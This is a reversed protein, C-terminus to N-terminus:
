GKLDQFLRLWDAILRTTLYNERMHEKGAEGMAEARAPEEFLQVTRAACEEVSDVLYGDVGDRIQLTIGGCNGGIVPRGKWLAEAVTLGFGERISKQVVVQSARQFANIQVAGVQQINSVMHIDPDNGRAEEALNWYQFGEPDDTAMSGALLLQLGDVEKRAIRYAEIVGVPDKWPDFRSVQCLLPRDPKVGYQRVIEHVFATDLPLNKVATPDIAPPIITVRDMDLSDPVFQEMTWVSADHREVYPRLFEWFTPDADTLDIHCRWIFKTDPNRRNVAGDELFAVIAAPQPDHMIVFDYEGEFATANERLRDLYTEQMEQTWPLDAGQLANHMAKTVSFFEDSGHIVHWEADLGVDTMLPVVTGLLEAVGGGYATANVHLVRAGRLPAALERLEEVAERGALEEYTSLEKTLLPVRELM